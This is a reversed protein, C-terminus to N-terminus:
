LKKIKAYEIAMELLQRGIGKGQMSNDLIYWRLQATDKSYRTIAISGKIDLTEEVIWIREDNRKRQVCEVLPIAVYPEFSADFGHTKYYYEGHM